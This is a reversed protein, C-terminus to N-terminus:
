ITRSQKTHHGLIWLFIAVREELCVNCTDGRVLRNINNIHTSYFNPNLSLEPRLQQRSTSIIFLYLRFMGMVNTIFAHLAM